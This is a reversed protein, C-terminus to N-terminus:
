LREEAEALLAHLDSLKNAKVSIEISETKDASLRLLVVDKSNAIARVLDENIVYWAAESLWEKTMKSRQSSIHELSMTEGGDVSIRSDGNLMAWEKSMMRIGLRWARAEDPRQVSFIIAPDIPAGIKVMLSCGETIEQENSTCYEALLSSCWIMNIFLIVASFSRM